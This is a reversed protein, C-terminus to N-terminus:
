QAPPILEFRFMHNAGGTTLMDTVLDCDGAWAAGLGLLILILLCTRHSRWGAGWLRSFTERPRALLEAAYVALVPHLPLCHRSLALTLGYVLTSHVMLL